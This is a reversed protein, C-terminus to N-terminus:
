GEIEVNPKKVEEKVENNQPAKPKYNEKTVQRGRAVAMSGAPISKTITSGAAIFSNDGIEIPAILQTDSGVFVNKGVKTVYKKKDFAYNVTITGCGINTEDGIVADGLYALHSAKAGAGFNVKKMEVFNGVKAEQGIITGPRLRAFPGIVAKTEIKVEEFYCQSKIHVADSVQAKYLYSNPEIICMKGIKTGARLCNGPYVVTGAGIKVDDEIYTNDPDMIMVGQEMLQKAKRKFIYKTAKALEVQSNVGFAVRSPSLITGVSEGEEAALSVIDTLYFEKQSNNNKLLPLLKNLFKAEVLYMGTNIENIKLTEHSADKAEVIAKLEGHHRVIRGFSGPKKVKATVVSLKRQSNVFEKIMFRLDNAEILPHDGNMILVTGQLSQPEACQVAHGTGLQQDQKYASAGLPEVVQRVLEEGHGVVVRIQRAGVENLADIVRSIMPWGAVPHLVKPLPSKMRTGKGAALLITSFDETIRM